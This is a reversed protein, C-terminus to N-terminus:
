PDRMVDDSNRNVLKPERIVLWSERSAAVVAQGLSLGGDGAPVQSHTFVRFGDGALLRELEGSLYVNQFTGGSLCVNNLGTRERLRRAVGAFSCALGDHFRQSIQGPASGRLLDEVIARIVPAPDLQLVGGEERLAFSYPQEAASEDRCAELEIAAQAEYNVEHRLGILAAVGDFLRGCSSTVPSNVGREAMQFITRLKAAPIQEVFPITLRFMEPGFAHRLYSAAMRWPERIAAAGGPMPVYSFHAAREFDLYDAFLVEGGWVCGDTGYGTGDLAIGIVREALRNEAMCSAIHAHHHQVGITRINRQALAWRTSFYDPHLDYAVVSPQIELINQWHEVAEGFFNCAEANELDGIHHSLFARRGQLLCITNKLEGGVALVSPFERDLFVPVPVFGRARRLQRVRGGSRRAVSDDCRRLIERDHVLFLDALSALRAIAEVNGIAIPEESVNGSTMVLARLGSKAFLLQHLPTYPLFIGLHPNRPAVGAAIASPTKRRLIVIPREPSLLLEREEGDLECFDAAAEADPVMVAFPKEVRHKRERLREVAESNTADAALHFGGLGKVAVIAGAGLQAAAEGVPDDCSIREGRVDRLEARPGCDWCANPQAHFRRNQPDDYEARCRACMEFAAMSTQPRDYPISRVITFRPGCNTCNIFPYLYRRNARDFLERLCDDCVAIDPPILARAAESKESAHIRFDHDGNCAIERVDFDTIRALPPAEAPLARLFEEVSEPAGQIEIAVGSSTNAIGGTLQRAVALRYVYPRFGVGQVMGSVDIRKRIQM